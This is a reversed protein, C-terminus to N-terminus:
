RRIGARISHGYCWHSLPHNRSKLYDLLKDMVQREHKVHALLDEDRISMNALGSKSSLECFSPATHTVVTDIPTFIRNM